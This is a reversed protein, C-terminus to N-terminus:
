AGPHIWPELSLTYRELSYWYPELSLMELDVMGSWQWPYAQMVGPHAEM